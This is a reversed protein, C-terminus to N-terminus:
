GLVSETQVMLTQYNELEGPLGGALAWSVADLERAKM